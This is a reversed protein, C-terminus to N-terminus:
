VISKKLSFFVICAYECQAHLTTCIRRQPCQAHVHLNNHSHADFFNKNDRFSLSKRTNKINQQKSKALFPKGKLIKYLGFGKIEKGTILLLLLVLRAATWTFIPCRRFTALGSRVRFTFPRISDPIWLSLIYKPLFNTTAKFLQQSKKFNVVIGGKTVPLFPHYFFFHM